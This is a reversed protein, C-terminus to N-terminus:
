RSRVSEPEGTPLQVSRAQAELLRSHWDVQKQLLDAQRHTEVLQLELHRVRERALQLEQPSGSKGRTLAKGVTTIFSIVIGTGCGIATLAVIASGPDM